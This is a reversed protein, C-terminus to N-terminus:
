HYFWALKSRLLVMCCFCSVHGVVLFCHYCLVFVRGLSSLSNIVGLVHEKAGFVHEKCLAGLCNFLLFYPRCGAWHYWGTLSGGFLSQSLGENYQSRFINRWLARRTRTQSYLSACTFKGARGPLPATSPSTVDVWSLCLDEGRGEQKKQNLFHLGSLVWPMVVSAQRGTFRVLTRNYSIVEWRDSPRESFEKRCQSM